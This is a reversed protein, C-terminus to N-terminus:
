CDTGRPGHAEYAAVGCGIRPDREAVRLPALADLMTFADGARGAALAQRAPALVADPIAAPVAGPQAWLAAPAFAALVVALLLTGFGRPLVLAVFGAAAALAARPGPANARHETM